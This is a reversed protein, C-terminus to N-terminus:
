GDISIAITARMVRRGISDIQKQTLARLPHVAVIVAVRRRHDFVPAAITALWNSTSNLVM